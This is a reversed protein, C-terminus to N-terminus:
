NNFNDETLPICLRNKDNSPALSFFRKKLSELLANESPGFSNTNDNEATELHGDDNALACCNDRVTKTSSHRVSRNLQGYVSSVLNKAVSRITKIAGKVKLVMCIKSSYEM